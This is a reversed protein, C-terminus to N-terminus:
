LDAIRRDESSMGAQPDIGKAMDLERKVRAIKQELTENQMSNLHAMKAQNQQNLLSNVKDADSTVHHGGNLAAIQQQLQRIRDDEADLNVLDAAMCGTKQEFHPDQALAGSQVNHRYMNCM